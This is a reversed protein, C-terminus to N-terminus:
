LFVLLSGLISRKHWLLQGILSLVLQSESLFKKHLNSFDLPLHNAPTGGVAGLQNSDM